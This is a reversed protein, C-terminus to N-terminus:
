YSYEYKRKDTQYSIKWVCRNVRFSDKYNKRLNEQILDLARYCKIEKPLLFLYIQIYERYGFGVAAAEKKGKAKELLFKQSFLFIEPFTLSGDSGTPYLALKKGQLLAATDIMAEEIAWVLLLVFTIVSRLAPLGIVGCAALAAQEAPQRRASDTYLSIFHLATRLACLRMAVSFLNDKDAAKGALLYEIEYSLAGNKNEELYDSFHSILYSHFLVTDTITELVNGASGDRPLMNQIEQLMHNANVGLLSIVDNSTNEQYSFGSPLYSKDLIKESIEKETLFGLFGEGAASTLLNKAQTSIDEELSMEGYNLKLGEFSYGCLATEEKQLADLAASLAVSDTGSFCKGLSRLIGADQSLTAKMQEFDYGEASEYFKYKELEKRYEKEADEGIIAGVSDLLKECDAKIKKATQLEKYIEDVQKYAEECTAAVSVCTKIFSEEEKSLRKVQKEHEQRQKKLEASEDELKKMEYLLTTQRKQLTEGTEEMQEITESIRIEETLLSELKEQIGERPSAATLETIQVQVSSLQTKAADIDADLQEMSLALASREATLEEMHRECVKEKEERETVLYLLTEAQEMFGKLIECPNESNKIFAQYVEARDFYRAAGQMDTCFYKVYVKAQFVTAKGRLFNEYQSLLVGDVQEILKLLKEEVLSYATDAATKAVAVELHTDAQETMGMVRKLLNSIELVGRYKMVSVAQSYFGDLNDDTLVKAYDISFEAGSRLLLSKEGEKKQTMYLVDEGITKETWSLIDKGEPVERGFIHYQKYLPELYGAFYNEVALLSASAHYSTRATYAAMEFFSLIFSFLLLFVLSFVITVSGQKKM